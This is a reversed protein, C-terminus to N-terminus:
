RLRHVSSYKASKLRLLSDDETRARRVMDAGITGGRGARLWFGSLVDAALM